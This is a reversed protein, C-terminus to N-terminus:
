FAQLARKVQLQFIKKIRKITLILITLSLFISFTIIGALIYPDMFEITYSADGNVSKEEILKKTATSSKSTNHADLERKLQKNEGITGENVKENGIKDGKIEVYVDNLPIDLEEKECGGVKKGSLDYVSHKKKHDIAQLKNQDTMYINDTTVLEEFYEKGRVKVLRGKVDIIKAVKDPSALITAFVCFLIKVRGLM